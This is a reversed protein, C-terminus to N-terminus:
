NAREIIGNQEPTYLTTFQLNTGRKKAWDKFKASKAFSQPMTLAIAKLTKRTCTEMQAVLNLFPTYFGKATQKRLTGNEV